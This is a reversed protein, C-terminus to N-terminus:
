GADDLTISRALARYDDPAVSDAFLWVQRSPGPQLPRLDCRLAGPLIRSGAGHRYDIGAVRIMGQPLLLLTPPRQRSRYLQYALSGACALGWSWGAWGHLGSAVWLGLLGHIAILLIRWTLSARQVGIQRRLPPYGAPSDPM